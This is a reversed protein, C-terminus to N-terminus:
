RKWLKYGTLDTRKFLRYSGWVMVASFILSLVNATWLFVYPYDSLFEAINEIWDVGLVPLLISLPISLVYQAVFLKIYAYSRFIASALMYMATHAVIASIGTMVALICQHLTVEAWFEKINHLFNTVLTADYALVVLVHIGLFLAGALIPLVGGLLGTITFRSLFKERETGPVMLYRLRKPRTNYCSCLTSQGVGSMVLAIGAILFVSFGLGVHINDIANEREWLSDSRLASHYGLVSFIICLAMVVGSAILSVLLFVRYSAKNEALDHRLLLKYRELSFTSNM